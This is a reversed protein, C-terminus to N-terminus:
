WIRFHIDLQFRNCTSEINAVDVGPKIGMAETKPLVQGEEEPMALGAELKFRDQIQVFLQEETGKIFGCRGM